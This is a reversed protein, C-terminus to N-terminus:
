AGVNDARHAYERFAIPPWAMSVPPATPRLTDYIRPRIARDGPWTNPSFSYVVASSLLLTVLTDPTHPSRPISPQRRQHSMLRVPFLRQSIQELTPALQNDIMEHEPQSPLFTALAARIQGVMKVARVPVQWM